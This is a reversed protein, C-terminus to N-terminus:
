EESETKKKGIHFIAKLKDLIAYVKDYEAQAKAADQELREEMNYYLLNCGCKPCDEKLYFISLRQGCAPCKNEITM